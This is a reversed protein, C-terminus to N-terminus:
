KNITNWPVSLSVAFRSTLLWVDTGSGDDSSLLRPYLPLSTYWLNTSWLHFVIMRRKTSKSFAFSYSGQEHKWEHLLCQVTCLFTLPWTACKSANPQLWYSYILVPLSLLADQLHGATRSHSWGRSVNAWIIVDGFPESKSHEANM